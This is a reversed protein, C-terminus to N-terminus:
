RLFRRLGEEFPLPRIGFVTEIANSPTSTGEVLMRLQVSTIPAAPGLPDSARAACRVLALPIHVLPRPHGAARGIARVFEEYTLVAPGGLEFTGVVDARELALAFALAVDEIWVPQTPFRGDGFIPIVPSWRHLRGLMRIPVSEPGSILSPQLIAAPLGSGRVLEEAQWKTRHYSTARADARAGLASMHIFRRVGAARAANLMRGTGDVHVTTFTASGWEVIIGVLHVVADAGDLLLALAAGDALSGAVLEAGQTKLFGARPLDRVLARVRHGRRLFLSALHRGVFGTAGTIAVLV